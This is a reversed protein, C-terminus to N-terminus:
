RHVNFFCYRKPNPTRALVWSSYYSQSAEQGQAADLLILKTEDEERHHCLFPHSNETHSCEWFLVETFNYVYISLGEELFREMLGIFQLCYFRSYGYKRDIILLIILRGKICCLLVPQSVSRAAAAPRQISGSPCPNYKDALYIFLHINTRM